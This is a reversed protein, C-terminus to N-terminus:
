GRGRRAHDRRQRHGGASARPGVEELRDALVSVDGGSDAGRRATPTTSGPAPQVAVAARGARAPRRHRSPRAGPLADDARDDRSLRTVLFRASTAHEAANEVPCPTDGGALSACACRRHAVALGRRLRASRGPGGPWRSRRPWRPRSRRGAARGARARRLDEPKAARPSAPATLIVRRARGLLPALIGAADKDRLVGVVLTM